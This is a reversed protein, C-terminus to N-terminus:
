GIYKDWWQQFVFYPWVIKSYNKGSWKGQDGNEFYDELLKVVEDSNFLGQKKLFDPSSWDILAEKLPGRLWRDLPVIFGAKPRDLLERPIYSYAIDRLIRKSVDRYIKYDLPLSFAYEIVEKDMLPCRCELSARMTARDTKVLMYDPLATNLDLLMRRTAWNPENYKSEFEYYYNGPNLLINDLIDTYNRVGLQTSAEKNPIDSVIRLEIPLVSFKKTKGIIPMNKLHRIAQGKFRNKQALALKSYIGYGGFLEDGGDGSLAVTVKQRAMSSLLMLPIEAPDALPQDYYQPIDDVLELMESDSIYRTEHETGLFSAVDQAYKAEDISADEFGICFTKLPESINKQAMACILSSDIGGSLFAGVPVDACLRRSVAQNIIYDLNEKAKDYNKVLHEKKEDYLRAIDGWTGQTVTGKDYKLWGGQELSFVDEFITNPAHIGRHLMYDGLVDTRVKKPFEPFSMIPKLESAFVIGKSNLWYFLPKKGMFDRFLYLSEDRSDWIAIAFMGNLHKVFSQGWKLYAAIIVETDCNTRFAYSDKLQNKLEKWNYIEGNFVVTVLDDKSHMPQHGNQSLDQVSLRRHALGVEMAGDNTRHTEEGSDDPGRHILLNNIRKLKELSINNKTVFGCIGCM